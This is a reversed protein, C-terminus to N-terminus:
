FIESRVRREVELTFDKEQRELTLTPIQRGLKIKLTRQLVQTSDLLLHGMAIIM